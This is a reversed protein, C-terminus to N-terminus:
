RAPDKVACLGCHVQALSEEVTNISLAVGDRIHM